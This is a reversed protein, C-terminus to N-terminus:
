NLLRDSRPKIVLKPYLRGGKIRYGVKFPKMQSAQALKVITDIGAAYLPVPSFIYINEDKM